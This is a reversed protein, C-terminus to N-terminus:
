EMVAIILFDSLQDRMQMMVRFSTLMYEPLFPIGMVLTINIRNVRIELTPDIVFLRRVCIIARTKVGGVPLRIHFLYYFM